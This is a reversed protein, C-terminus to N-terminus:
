GCKRSGVRSQGQGGVSTGKLILADERMSGEGELGIKM